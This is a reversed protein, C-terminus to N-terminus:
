RLGAAEVQHLHVLVDYSDLVAIRPAEPAWYLGYSRTPRAPALWDRVSAPATRLDLAFDRHGVEDLTHETHGEPAPPVTFTDPEQATPDPLAGITGQHFTLGVNVYRDGIRERLGAGTPDPFDPDASTYAVHSNNSALLVKGGGNDLWWVTNDAMVEDRYRMRDAFREDPFAYGTFSQEIAMANRLAWEHAPTGEARERILATAERAREADTDRRSQEKGLQEAMWQGAQTGPAPRLDAYLEGIRGTLEPEHEALYDTVRAFADPGPYGLDNGVFRLDPEGPHSLNYERMWEVLELYDENNWFVYQGQFEEAMIAAPDGIGHVVYDDLRLGTSWSTELVFTTFGRTTALHRFVEGKLAFFQRAGHSAEGLGVVEAAGAMAALAGPDLPRSHAEIARVPGSEPDGGSPGQPTACGVLTVVTATAM